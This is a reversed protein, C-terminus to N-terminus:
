LATKLKLIILIVALHLLMIAPLGLMFKNHQTKHRILKMTLYEGFAGGMFAVLILKAEPIRWLEKKAKYKDAITIIAAIINIAVIYYAIYKIM